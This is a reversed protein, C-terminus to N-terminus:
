EFHPNFDEAHNLIHIMRDPKLYLDIIVVFVAYTIQRQYLHVQTGTRDWEEVGGGEVRLNCCAFVLLNKVYIM